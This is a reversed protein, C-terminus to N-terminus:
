PHEVLQTTDEGWSWRSSRVLQPFGKWQDDNQPVSQLIGEGVLLRLLNDHKPSDLDISMDSSIGLIRSTEHIDDGNFFRLIVESQKIVSLSTENKVLNCGFFSGVLKETDLFDSNTRLSNGVNDSM